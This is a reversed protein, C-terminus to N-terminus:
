YMKPVLVIQILAGVLGGIIEGVWYKWSNSWDGTFVTPAFVVAPNFAGGSSSGGLLALFGLTLGICLLGLASVDPREHVHRRLIEGGESTDYVPKKYKNIAVSFAMFVLIGSFFAETLIINITSVSSKVPNPNIIDLLISKDGPFCGLVAAAAGMFGLLQMLIFMIGRVIPLKGFCIAAITIAPNSHAITVGSFSYKLATGSFGISLGVLVKGLILKDLNETLIASYIVYGFLFSIVFEGFFKRTISWPATSRVM